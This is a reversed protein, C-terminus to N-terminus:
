MLIQVLPSSYTIHFKKKTFLREIFMYRDTLQEIVDDPADGADVHRVFQRAM